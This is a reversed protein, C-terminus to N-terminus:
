STVTNFIIKEYEVNDSTVENSIIDFNWIQDAISSFHRNWLQSNALRSYKFPMCIVLFNVINNKLRIQFIMSFQLTVEKISKQKRAENQLYKMKYSICLVLKRRWTHQICLSKARFATYIKLEVVSYLDTVSPGSLPAVHGRKKHLKPWFASCGALVAHKNALFHWQSALFIAALM